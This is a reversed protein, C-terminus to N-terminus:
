REVYLVRTGWCTVDKLKSLIAPINSTHPFIHFIEGKFFHLRVDPTQEILHLILPCCGVQDAEIQM